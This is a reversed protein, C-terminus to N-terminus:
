NTTLTFVLRERLPRTTIRYVNLTGGVNAYAGTGGAVALEYRFENRSIGHVVISNAGITFSGWCYRSGPPIPGRAQPIPVCLMQANGIPRPSVNLNYVSAVRLPGASTSTTYLNKTTVRVVGPRTLASAAPVILLVAAVLVVLYKM